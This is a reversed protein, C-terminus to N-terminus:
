RLQVALLAVDDSFTSRHALVHEILADPGGAGDHAAALEVLHQLDEEIDGGRTEVLGDTFLLVCDGTRLEVEHDAREIHAVLGALVDPTRGLLEAKGDARVLLPPPHGANCWRLMRPGGPEAPPSVQALVITALAGLQLETLACDLGDLVASPSGSLTQAVGRLINRIQAMTAAAYQDHGAVDGIVLNTTGDAQLFADYWDGGVQAVQQAPHYSVAFDLHESVPPATLLSRQLTEAIRQVEAAAQREAERVQLRDLVQGCQAAFARLLEVEDPRFAQSSPFGLGLSGIVRSGIQMPICAVAHLEMARMARRLGDYGSAAHDNPVLVLSGRAALSLPMPGSLYMVDGTSVAGRSGAHWLELRDGGTPVAITASTAGLVHGATRLSISALDDISDASGLQMASEALGALRRNALQQASVAAALEQARAYLDAEVEEVRRRLLQGQEREAAGREREQVFDTINEARQVILAVDGDANLIPVSILSWFREVMGLGDPSPIDYKQLPMTDPRKTEIAKLFSQQIRPTGSEDLADPLPPFAEFVPRGVIDDLTRGVNELYAENADVVVLDPTMVLYSTPIGRFLAAYDVSVASTM